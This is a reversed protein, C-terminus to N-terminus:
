KAAAMRVLRLVEIRLTGFEALSGRKVGKEILQKLGKQPYKFKKAVDVAEQNSM